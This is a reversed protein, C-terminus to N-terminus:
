VETFSSKLFSCSSHELLSAGEERHGCSSLVQHHLASGSDSDGDQPEDSVCLNQVKVRRRGKQLNAETLFKEPPIGSGLLTQRHSALGAWDSGWDGGWACVRLGQAWPSFSFLTGLPAARSSHKQRDTRWRVGKVRTGQPGQPEARWVPGAM